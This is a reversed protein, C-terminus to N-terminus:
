RNFAYAVHIGYAMHSYTHTRTLQIQFVFGLFDVILCLMALAQAPFIIKRGNWESATEILAHMSLHMCKTSQMM